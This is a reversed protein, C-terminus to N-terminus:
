PTGRKVPSRIQKNRRGHVITCTDNGGEVGKTQSVETKPAGIKRDDILDDLDPVRRGADVQKRPNGAHGKFAGHCGSYLADKPPRVHPKHPTVRQNFVLPGGAPQLILRVKLSQARISGARRVPPRRARERRYGDGTPRRKRNRGPNRDYSM